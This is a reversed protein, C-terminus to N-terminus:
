GVITRDGRDIERQYQWSAEAIEKQFFGSEIAALCGGLADIKDFYAFCERELASTLAEVVYSGGLPDVTNTVGSEHAIVQQTRRALRGAKESPLAIAEDLSNTHLSQTGGLVAALAQITTRILNEEPRQETLS